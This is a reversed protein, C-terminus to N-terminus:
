HHTEELTRGIQRVAGMVREYHLRMPGLVAIKATIGGPLMVSTGILVLNEMAPHAAGLGVQVHVEGPYQELFRDLLELLRKKEELARLLERMKEHTLRPDGILNSAGELYIEPVQDSDLLGKSYLLTLKRVNADYVARELDIRRLLEARAERLSWGAFDRNVYNRISHLEEQTTGEELTVVRHRVMGDSTVLIMLVRGDALLVLETQKLVQSSQPIAAAIGVNRTIETLVHSSREVQQELSDSSELEVRIRAADAVPIRCAVLSSAYYRFAKNSPVRGASTHPQCLFGSDVLDAMANRITAPSLRDRRKRSITRSAVPEGTEIFHRVLAMLVEHERVPLKEEITTM